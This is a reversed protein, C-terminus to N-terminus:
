YKIKLKFHLYSTYFIVGDYLSDLSSEFSTGKSEFQKQNM